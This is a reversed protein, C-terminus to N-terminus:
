CVPQWASPYFSGDMTLTHLDTVMLAPGMPFFAVRHRNSEFTFPPQDGAHALMFAVLYTEPSLILPGHMWM